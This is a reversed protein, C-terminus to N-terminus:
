ILAHLDQRLILSWACGVEQMLCGLGWADVAWPPSDRVLTWDSKAVEGSKYQAGVMWSASMLPFEGAWQHESVLDLGYLKWDLTDTVVVAQMSVNGHIQSSRCPTGSTIHRCSWTVSFFFRGRSVLKCDNNLFAVATSIHHLGMAIYQERCCSVVTSLSSVDTLNMILAPM